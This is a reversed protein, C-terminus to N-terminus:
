KRKFISLIAALLASLWHTKVPAPPKPQPKVPPEIDPPAAGHGLMAALQSDSAAPPTIKEYAPRKAYAAALKVDYKNQAYGAGNYGRAFKAWNLTRLHVQLKSSVIFRAMAYLQAGESYTMADVFGQVTAFGCVKHNFGMCQGLGWSCSRLAAAEDIGMARELWAYRAAQTKPYPKTRPKEYALGNAVAKTRKAGSLERYLIHPENLILPRGDPGFGEGESEVALVARVAAVHCGLYGAITTVDGDSLPRAQGRFNVAM